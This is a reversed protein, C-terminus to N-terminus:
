DSAAPHLNQTEQAIQRQQNQLDRMKEPSPKDQAALKTAEQALQQERRALEAAKEDPPKQGYLAQELRELQKKADQQSAPIDQAHANKLDDQAKKMSDATREQRQELSPLDLKSLKDAIEGQKRAQEALKQALEKRAQENNPDNQEAQKALPEAQRSLNEQAQRLKTMEGKAQDLRQQLTPLKDALRDLAQKAENMAQEANPQNKKQLADAAKAAQEIAKEKEKLAEKISEPVSIREAASKIAEQEKRLDDLKEAPMQNLPTKRAENSTRNKLEDELRALQKAAERPDKALNVAKDLSNALRDLDQATQEQKTLAQNPDGKDLADAAEKPKSADLQPTQAAQTPLRTEDALKHAKEALERQQKALDALQQKKADQQTQNMAQQLDRQQQALERAKDALQKDADAQAANMAQKLEPSQETLKQLENKLEQQERALEQAKQPDKENAAKEALQKEREALQEIKMQDLRAQALRENEKQLDELRKIASELDKDAKSFEQDRPKSAKEREAQRLENAANRMEQDGVDQLRNALPQLEPTLGVDSALEKLTRENTQHEKRLEQLLIAPEPALAEAKRAEEKAKYLRRQEGRLDEILSQLRKRIDDRQAIVEQQKLPEAQQAIKLTFWRDEGPHYVVNPELKAEPVRRNDAIKLRYRITDGEKVKGALKFPYRVSIQTQGAEELPIIETKVPDNNVQYEIVAVDIGYDDALALDLPVTEYAPVSRTQETAGGVKVFAPPRDPLVALSQPPLETRIGHEAELVLAFRGSKIAPWELRATTNGDALDLKQRTTPKVSAATLDAGEPYWELVASQAPRNFRFQFTLKSYQLASFDSLGTFTKTEVNKRAYEPAEITIAPSDGALQVPDVATVTYTNGVAEGAEVRYRFTDNVSNMKFAFVNAQETKMRLHTAKVNADIMVLTATDPLKEGGSTAQVIASLTLAQGRAVAVDGTAASIEYGVPAHRWPTLLRQAERGYSTPWIAAPFAVVVLILFATGALQWTGGEPAAKLFDLKRTRVETERILLDILQKSGHSGDRVEQLEVSTTLREALNPYESEILAALADVDIRQSFVRLTRVVGWIALLLWGGLLGARVIGPFRLFYDAVLALGATAGLIAVTWAVNRVLRIQTIKGALDSLKQHLSTPLSVATAMRETGLSLIPFYRAAGRLGM